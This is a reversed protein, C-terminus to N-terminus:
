LFVDEAEDAFFEGEGFDAGVRFLGLLLLFQADEVHLLLLIPDGGHHLLKM